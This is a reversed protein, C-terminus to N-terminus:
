KEDKKRCFKNAYIMEIIVGALVVACFIFGVQILDHEQMQGKEVRFCNYTLYVLMGSLVLCFTGMSRCLKKKDFTAKEEESATNYGAIFWSGKGFMLAVGLALFAATLICMFIIAGM